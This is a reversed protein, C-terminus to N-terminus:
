VAGQSVDAAKVGVQAYDFGAPPLPYRVFLLWTFALIAAVVGAQVAFRRNVVLLLFPYGLGIQGLVNTFEWTTAKPSRSALFVALLVLLAARVLAHRFIRGFAHGQERRRAYSFPLAVGVMFMFAPQILDWTSCGVWPVHEFWWALTTWPGAPLKQAVQDLGFGHSAMCLMIAGRFADLSTLRVATPRLPASTTASMPITSTASM